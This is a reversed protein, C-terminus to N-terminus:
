LVRLYWRISLVNRAWRCSSHFWGTRQGMQLTIPNRITPVIGATTVIQRLSRPLYSYTLNSPEISMEHCGSWWSSARVCSEEYPTPDGLGNNVGWVRNRAATPRNELISANADLYLDRGVLIPRSQFLYRLDPQVTLVSCRDLVTSAWNKLVVTQLYQTFGLMEIRQRDFTPNWEVQSSEVPIAEGVRLAMHPMKWRNGGVWGVCPWM